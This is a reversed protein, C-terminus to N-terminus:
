PERRKLPPSVVRVIAVLRLATQIATAGAVVCAAGVLGYTPIVLLSGVLMAIILGAATMLQLGFRRTASIGAELFWGVFGIGTAAVLWLFVDQHEAYEPGYLAAVVSPGVLAALAVGTLALAAGTAVLKLILSRFGAMDAAAHRDALVPLAVEALASVVTNGAVMFYALAAFIGLSAEGFNNEVVYRPVNVALSMLGASLGLPLALWALRAWTRAAAVAPTLAGLASAVGSLLRRAMPVDYLALTLAPGLGSAAAAWVVRDTWWFALALAALSLVGNLLVSRAILNMARHRQFLGHYVDMVAGLGKGVAVFIITLALEGSYGVFAVVALVALLALATTLLRLGLYDSFTFLGRADSAQVTRLSMSALLVIPATVALALAYEGVVAPSGLRALVILM